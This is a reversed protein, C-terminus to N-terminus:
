LYDYADDGELFSPAGPDTDDDADAFVPELSKRTLDARIVSQMVGYGFFSQGLDSILKYYEIKDICVFEGSPSPICLECGPFLKAKSKIAIEQAVKFCLSKDSANNKSAKDSVPVWAEQSGCCVKVKLFVESM